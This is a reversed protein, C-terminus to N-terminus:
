QTMQQLGLGPRVAPSLSPIYTLGVSRALKDLEGNKELREVAANVATLLESHEETTVFGLNFGVPLFLGSSRLLTQPNDQRYTDFKHSEILVVDFEAKSLADLPEAQMGVHIINAILLGKKYSMTILDGMSAPRNGIKYPQLEDLSTLKQLPIAAGLVVTIGAFHYPSSAVLQSGNISQKRNEPAIGDVPPLTTAEGSPRDLSSQILPYGGVLQCVGANILVSAKVSVAGRSRREKEYWKVDLTKGLQKAVSQAVLYDYGGAAGEKKFSFPANDKNLCITLTAGADDTAALASVPACLAFAATLTALARMM